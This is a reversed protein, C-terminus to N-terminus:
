GGYLLTGGTGHILAGSSGYLLTGVRKFVATLKTINRSGVYRPTDDDEQFADLWEDFTSNQTVVSGVSEWPSSPYECSGSTTASSTDYPDWSYEQVWKVFRWGSAATADFRYRKWKAIWEKFGYISGMDEYYSDMLSAVAQCGETAAEPPNYTIDVM